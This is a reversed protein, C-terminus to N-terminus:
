VKGLFYVKLGGIIMEAAMAILFIGSVKELIVTGNKGLLKLFFSSFSILIYTVAVILAMAGVVLFPEVASIKKSDEVLRVLTTLTAPGVFMPFALPCLSIDHHLAQEPSAEDSPAKPGSYLLGWAAVGLLIGGGVRFAAASIGLAGLLLSGLASFAVGFSLGYVCMKLATRKRESDTYTQTCSLFFPLIIQPNIVFFLVIVYSGFEEFM